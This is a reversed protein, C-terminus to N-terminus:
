RAHQMFFHWALETGEADRCQNGILQAALRGARFPHARSPIAHGGGRMEIFSVPAGQPQPPFDTRILICGDDPALDPLLTTLARSRDAQMAVIWSDLSVPVPALVGPARMVRGGEWKVLADETGNGILLPVPNRLPAIPLGEPLSAIWAAAGAFEWPAEILLRYTMMGGNSVGTVFTNTPRGGWQRRAHDLLQVIFGVDDSSGRGRRGSERLDNWAQNDGAAEGSRRHTGNPILLLFGEREALAPWASYGGGNTAVVKRMSGGGGHLLVVTAAGSRHSAPIYALYHRTVGDVSLTGENWAANADARWLFLAAMLVAALLLLQSIPHNMPKFGNRSFLAKRLPHKM